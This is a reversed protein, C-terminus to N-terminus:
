IIYLSLKVKLSTFFFFLFLPLATYGFVVHSKPPVRIRFRLTNNIEFVHLSM